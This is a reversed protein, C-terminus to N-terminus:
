GRPVVHRLGRGGMECQVFGQFSGGGQPRKDHRHGLFEVKEDRYGDRIKTLYNAALLEAFTDSFEKKEKESFSRWNRGVARVSLGEFDFVQDFKEWMLKDQEKKNAPDKFKPDKLVKIFEYVNRKLTEMPGPAKAAASFSILLCATLALIIAKVPKM